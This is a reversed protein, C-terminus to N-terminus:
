EAEARRIEVRRNAASAVVGAEAPRASGFGYASLRDSRVNRAILYGRAAIARACSLQLNVVPDGTADTHGAVAFRAAALQPANLARALTDLLRRDSDTLRDSGTAFHVALDVSAAGPAAYPVVELTRGAVGATALASGGPCAGNTTPAATPSFTRSRVTEASLRSVLDDVSVESLPQAAVGAWAAAAIVLLAARAGHRSSSLRNM